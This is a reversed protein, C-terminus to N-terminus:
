KIEYNSRLMNAILIADAIQLQITKTRPKSWLAYDPFVEQAKRLLREKWVRTPEQKERNLHYFKQWAKPPISEVSINLATCAMLVYGYNVGFTFTSKIGQVVKGGVISPRAHVLEIGAKLSGSMGGENSAIDKMLKLNQFIDRRDETFYCTTIIQFNPGILAAGGSLGPDIGITYLNSSSPKSQIKPMPEVRITIPSTRILM